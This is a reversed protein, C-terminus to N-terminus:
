LKNKVLAIFNSVTRIDVLEGEDVVIGYKDEVAAVMGVIDASEAGLDQVFDADSHIVPIGLQVSVITKIEDDIM